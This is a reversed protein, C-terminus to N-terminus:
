CRTNTANKIAAQLDTAIVTITCDEWALLVMEDRSRHSKVVLRKDPKPDYYRGDDKEYVRVNNIVEIM